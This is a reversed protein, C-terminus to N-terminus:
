IIKNVSSRGRYKVWFLTMQLAFLGTLYLPNLQSAASRSRRDTLVTDVGPARVAGLLPSAPTWSLLCHAPSLQWPLLPDRQAPTCPWRLTLAPHPTTVADSVDVSLTLAAEAGAHM